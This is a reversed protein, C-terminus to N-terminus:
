VEEKKKPSTQFFRHLNTKQVPKASTAKKTPSATPDPDPKVGIQMIGCFREFFAEPLRGGSAERHGSAIERTAPTRGASGLGVAEGNEGEAVPTIPPPGAIEDGAGAAEEELGEFDEKYNQDLDAVFTPDSLFYEKLIEIINPNEGRDLAAKARRCSFHVMKVVPPDDSEEEGERRRRPRTSYGDNACMVVQLKKAGKLTGSWRTAISPHVQFPSTIRLLAVRGDKSFKPPTHTARETEEFVANRAEHLRVIASSAARRAELDVCAAPKGNDAASPLQLLEPVARSYELATWSSVADFEPTRRPANILSIAKSLSSKGIRRITAGMDPWPADWAVNVSLDGMTGLLCLYDIAEGAHLHPFDSANHSLQDPSRHSLPETWLPRCIVWTLLACAAVPLHHAASVMLAGEPGKGKAIFHHDVVLAKTRTGEQDWGGASGPVVPPGDRSGQDLVILYSADYESLRTQEYASHPNNAKSMLHTKILEDPVGLHLLTRRMIQGSSLGDADKDPVLVVPRRKEKESSATLYRVADRLFRGANEISDPPAPWERRDAPCEPDDTRTVALESGSTEPSLDPDARAKGKSRPSKKEESAPAALKQRKAPRSSSM